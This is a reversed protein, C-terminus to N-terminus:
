LSNVPVDEAQKCSRFSVVHRLTAGAVLVPGVGARNECWVETADTHQWVDDHPFGWALAWLLACGARQVGPHGGHAFMAQM